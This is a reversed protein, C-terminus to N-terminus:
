RNPLVDIYEVRNLPIYKRNDSDKDYTFTFETEGSQLSTGAAKKRVSITVDGNFRVDSTMDHWETEGSIKYELNATNGTIRNENDNRYLGSPLSGATIDITYYSTTGQLRVHIDNEPTIMALQEDTLKFEKGTGLNIWSASSSDSPNGNLCILVENGGSYM